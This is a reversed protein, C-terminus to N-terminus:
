WSIFVNLMKRFEIMGKLRQIVYFFIQFISIVQNANLFSWYTKVIFIFSHSLCHMCFDRILIRQNCVGSIPCLVVLPMSLLLVPKTIRNNQLLYNTNTGYFAPFEFHCQNGVYYDNFLVFM